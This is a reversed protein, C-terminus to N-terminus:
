NGPEFARPVPPLDATLVPRTTRGAKTYDFPKFGVTLAPSGEKLRFDANKPDVFGPDAVISHEDQGRKQRWQELTLGGFFLVPKGAANWYDNKDMKFHNDNWNSGLLPSANDWYVINRDFFFSTHPETRTRQIQHEQSYAFINNEIRNEKGYHQHFSGTKTRYVLNNDMLIGTSGEDTYLGWGGYSFAYIDHFVNDHVRTGPSVGLTYVGGMDSLVRQGLDYVRNFGVDNHHAHSAAYGWVWGVSIGTYYFDFIDNHQIQNYPSHGIWVGVAASHLRGGHAILCQRVVNHSALGEAEDPGRGWHQDKGGHGITVGGGGLDVLECDEVHNHRCAPGLEIAYGGVQRVACGQITVNRAGLLTIAASLNM